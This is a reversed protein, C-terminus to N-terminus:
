SHMLQKLMQKGYHIRSKVTGVRVSTIEAIEALSFEELFHLVLAERQLLPVQALAAAFSAEDERAILLDVPSEDAEALEDPLPAADALFDKKRWRQACKQRAIGFLWAAFKDAARLQGIHRSANVFTEQVIDLASADDGALERVFAFLPLRFRAFLARWADPDGRQAEVVPLIEPEAVLLM